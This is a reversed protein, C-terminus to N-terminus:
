SCRESSEECKRLPVCAESSFSTVANVTVAFTCVAVFVAVNVPVVPMVMLVTTSEAVLYGAEGGPPTNIMSVAGPAGKYGAAQYFKTIVILSTRVFSSDKPM